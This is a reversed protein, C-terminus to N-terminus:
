EGGLSANDLAPNHIRDGLCGYSRSQHLQHALGAAGYGPHGFAAGGM